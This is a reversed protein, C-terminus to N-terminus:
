PAFFLFDCELLRIIQYDVKAEEAVANWDMHRMPWANWDETVTSTDQVIEMIYDTFGDKRIFTLGYDWEDGGLEMVEDKFRVLTAWDRAISVFEGAEGERRVTEMLNIISQVDRSDFCLQDELERSRPTNDTVTEIM